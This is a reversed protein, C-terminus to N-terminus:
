GGAATEMARFAAGEDLFGVPFNCAMLSPAMAAGHRAAALHGAYTEPSLRAYTRVSEDDKWRCLAKIVQFSKGANHLACALGLEAECSPM